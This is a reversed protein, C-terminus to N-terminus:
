KRAEGVWHDNYNFNVYEHLFIASGDIAAITGDVSATEIFDGIIQWNPSASWPLRYDVPANTKVGYIQVAWRRGQYSRGTLSCFRPMNIPPEQSSGYTSSGVWTMPLTVDSGLNAYRAGLIDIQYMEPSLAAFLDAMAGILQFRDASTPHRLMLSHQANATSYDVWVRGTNNAPLKAM